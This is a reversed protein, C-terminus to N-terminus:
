GLRKDYMLQMQVGFPDEIVGYAESFVISSLPLIIKVRADSILSSYFQRIEELDASQICLSIQNGATYKEDPDMTEEAIMVKTSGIQLISHSIYDKNEETLQMSGDREAMQQYTVRMMEEAGLHQKYFDIAEKAQGNMSLFIAIELITSM